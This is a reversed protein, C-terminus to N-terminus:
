KIVVKKGNLIYIGKSPTEVRRGNLDYFATEGDGTLDRVVDIRTTGEGDFSMSIPATAAGKDTLVDAFNFYARFAKMRTKGTSYWFKNNYLFLGDNPITTEAVYTGVFSKGTAPTYTPTGVVVAVGDAVFSTVTSSVKILYPHNKTISTANAFNVTIGTVDDGDKTVDYGTFDALLVGDGFAATVQDATM